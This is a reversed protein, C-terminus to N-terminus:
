EHGLGLANEILVNHSAIFRSGLEAREDRLARMLGANRLVAPNSESLAGPAMIARAWVEFQEDSEAAAVGMHCVYQGAWQVGNLRHEGSDESSSLCGVIQDVIEPDRIEEYLERICASVPDESAQRTGGFVSFRGHCRENPHQDDKKQLIVADRSHNTIVVVSGFLGIGEFKVRMWAELARARHENLMIRDLRGNVEVSAQLDLLSILVADDDDPIGLLRRVWLDEGEKAHAPKYGATLEIPCSVLM